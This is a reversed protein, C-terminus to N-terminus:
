LVKNQGSGRYEEEDVRGRKVGKWAAERSLFYIKSTSSGRKKEGDREERERRGKRREVFCVVVREHLNAIERGTPIKIKGIISRDHEIRHFLRYFSSRPLSHFRSSTGLTSKFNRYKLLKYDKRFEFDFIGRGFIRGKKQLYFRLFRSMKSM